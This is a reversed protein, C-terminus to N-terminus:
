FCFNVIIIFTAHDCLWDVIQKGYSLSFAMESGNYMEGTGEQMVLNEGELTYVHAHYYGFRKQVLNVVM